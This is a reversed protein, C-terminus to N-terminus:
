ELDIGEWAAANYWNRDDEDEGKVIEILGKAFKKLEEVDEPNEKIKDALMKQLNLVNEGMANLREQLEPDYRGEEPEIGLWEQLKPFVSPPKETRKTYGADFALYATERPSNILSHLLSVLAADPYTALRDKLNSYVKQSVTTGDTNPKM